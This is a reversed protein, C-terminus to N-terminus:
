LRAAPLRLRAALARVDAKTFGAEALPARVGLEEAARQGPRDQGLDDLQEGHCLVLGERQAIERFRGFLHRKCIYCREPPNHAFGPIEGIPDVEMEIHRVGLRRATERAAEIEARPYLPSVATAAVARQGLEEAAIALLVSSDVGGSFAVLVGGMERLIQRLRELKDNLRADNVPQECARPM